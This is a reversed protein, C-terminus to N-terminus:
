AESPVMWAAPTSAFGGELSEALPFSEAKFFQLRNALTTGGIDGYFGGNNNMAAVQVAGTVTEWSMAVEYVVGPECVANATLELVKVGTANTSTKVAGSSALRELKTGNVRYIGVDIKDEGSGLTTVPFRVFKFTRKRSVTFRLLYARKATPAITTFPWIGMPIVYPLQDYPDYQPLAL